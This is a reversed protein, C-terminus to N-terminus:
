NKAANVERRPHDKRCLGSELANLIERQTFLRMRKNGFQAYLIGICNWSIHGLCVSLDLCLSWGPVDIVNKGFLTKAWM